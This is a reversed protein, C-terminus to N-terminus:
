IDGALLSAPDRIWIADADSHLVSLGSELVRLGFRQREGIVNLKNITVADARVRPLLLVHDHDNGHAALAEFLRKDLAVIVFWTAGARLAWACWNLILEVFDFTGFVLAVTRGDHSNRAARRLTRHEHSPLEDNAM